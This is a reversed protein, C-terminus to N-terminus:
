DFYNLKGQDVLLQLQTEQNPTLKSRSKGKKASRQRHLWIGLNSKYHYIEGRNGFGPLTCEYTGRSPINCTGHQECYQLLAAYHISWNLLNEKRKRDNCIPPSLNLKGEDVLLQLKAEQDPLLRSRNYKGLKARRQYTLWRGLKENYNYSRGNKGMGPLKCEFTVSNPVNCSGNRKYYELLAEYHCNWEKYLM